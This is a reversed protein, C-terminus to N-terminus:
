LTKLEQNNLEIEYIFNIYCSYLILSCLVMIFFKGSIMLKFDKKVLLCFQKIM